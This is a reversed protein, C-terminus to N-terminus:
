NVMSPCRSQNWTKAITFLATFFMHTCKDKQYFSQNEKPYIDLLSIAPKLPLETKLEKSFDGFQKGCHSFLNVNGGVTCLFERKEEAKVVDDHNQNANKQHGTIILKKEYTQQSCLYRRKFLTQEYGSGM